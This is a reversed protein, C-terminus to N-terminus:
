YNFYIYDDISCYYEEQQIYKMLRDKEFLNVFEITDNISWKNNRISEFLCNGIDRKASDRTKVIVKKTHNVFFFSM